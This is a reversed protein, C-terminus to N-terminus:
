SNNMTIGRESSALKSLSADYVIIKELKLLGITVFYRNFEQDLWYILDATNRSDYASKFEEEAQLRFGLEKQHDILEKILDDTKIKLLAEFAKEQHELAFKRYIHETSIVLMLGLLGILFITSALASSLSPKKIFM